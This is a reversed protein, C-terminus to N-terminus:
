EDTGETNHLLFKVAVLNDGDPQVDVRVIEGVYEQRAAGPFYPFKLVLFMAPCYHNHSSIFSLGYRNYDAATVVEELRKEAPLSWVHVPLSLNLRKRRRRDQSCEPNTDTVRDSPVNTVM